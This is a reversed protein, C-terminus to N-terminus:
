TYPDRQTLMLWWYIQWSKVVKKNNKLKLLLIPGIPRLLYKIHKILVKIADIIIPIITYRNYKPNVSLNM